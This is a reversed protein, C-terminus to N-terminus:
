IKNLYSPEVWVIECKKFYNYITPVAKQAKAHVDHFLLIGKRWLLMLTIQRNAVEDANIKANWDQSDLNWLIIKENKKDLYTAIEKTRQGYPPRFDVINQKSVSKIINETFDLSSKWTQLKQHSVHEQGHSAISQNQYLKLLKESSTSKLREEFANGLVYFVCSLNLEALTKITKDTNGNAPTPGDDFTLLFHKQNFATGTIENENITAIESSLKPSLGALRIQEYIYYEYFAKSNEHWKELSVPFKNHLKLNAITEWTNKEPIKVVDDLANKHLANLNGILVIKTKNQWTKISEFNISKRNTIEILKAENYKLIENFAEIFVIIECKSAIDFDVASDMPLKWLLRDSKAIAQPGAQGSSLNIFLIYLAFFIKRM